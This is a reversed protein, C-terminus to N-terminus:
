VGSAHLCLNSHLGSTLLLLRVAQGASYPVWLVHRHVSISRCLWQIGSRFSCMIHIHWNNCHLFKSWCCWQNWSMRTGPFCMCILSSRIYNSTCLTAVKKGTYGKGTNFETFNIQIWTNSTAVIIWKCRAFDPYNSAGSGDSLSGSTNTLYGCSTGCGNCIFSVQFSLCSSDLYWISANFTYWSQRFQSAQQVIFASHLDAFRFQRFALSCQEKVYYEIRLM